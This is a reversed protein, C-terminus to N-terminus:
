QYKRKFFWRDKASFSVGVRFYDERILNNEKTGQKGYELYINVQTGQKKIPLGFGLSVGLQSIDTNYLSLMGTQYNVGFRYAIKELYNGYIDPKYEAGANFTYNDKLIEPYRIGQLAFESWQTYGFDLGILFKNKREYSLGVGFSQPLEISGETNEYKVSDKVTEVAANYTFTYHRYQNQTPLHSPLVYNAGIVIADGNNLNQQYQLGFNFNIASISYNYEVRSSLMNASDPFTLTSSRYYNGFLYEANLGVSLKDFFSPQYSIGLMVKNIGGEGGYVFKHSGILSDTQFTESATYDIVSVPVLGGAMKLTKSLPFAFLIHSIGGTNGTSKATNSRLFVNNSYFGIDFVFSQTDIASFSAPNRYNVFNNRRLGNYIGGMSANITNTFSVEDGIGYKSYPSSVTNQAGIELVFAVFLLIFVIKKRM